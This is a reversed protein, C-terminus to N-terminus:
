TSEKKFTDHALKACKDWNEETFDKLIMRKEEGTSISYKSYFAKNSKILISAAKNLRKRCEFCIGDPNNLIQKNCIYCNM